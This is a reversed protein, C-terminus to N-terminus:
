ASYARNRMAILKGSKDMIPLLLKMCMMFLGSAIRFARVWAAPPFIYTDATLGCACPDAQRVAHKGVEEGVPPPKKTCPRYLQRTIRSQTGALSFVMMSRSRLSSNQSFPM